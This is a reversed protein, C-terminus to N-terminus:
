AQPREGGPQTLTDLPSVTNAVTKQSVQLYRMTTLLSTHGLLLQITRIDVGAELLHTAFCHRLTHIGSGHRLGAARRANEYVKQANRKTMPRAPSRGPFLWLKPRRARWYYRLEELLRKSLLTYRDKRGKGQEVRIMMRESHIDKVRLRVLENVRLGGSYATMLLVRNKLGVTAALLREVEERSLIEPLRGTKRLPKFPLKAPHWKLTEVYFFRLGTVMVRCTGPAVKREALLHIMFDKIEESSIQDPARRYHKALDAVSRLYSAQTAEALNRLQMERIMQARLKTM